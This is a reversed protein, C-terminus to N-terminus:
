GQHLAARLWDHLRLVHYEEPMLMGHEHRISAIGRQNLECVDADEAMFERGFQVINQLDFAPDALTERPLLWETFLETRTPGLPRLRVSRAYDVHAAIYMSPLTTVYAVGIHRDSEDLTPFDHGTSKGDMSWTEAGDRLGGKFKPDTSNAHSQWEPDDREALIGRGYIPVIRSLGPHVGPCHLCESYNEWIIKWNSEVIRTYSHAVVLQDLPWNALRNQDEDFFPFLPPADGEALSVFVFGGWLQVKVPYLGYAAPDVPIKRGYTPVGVLAGKLDYAWAHYPCTIRRGLTGAEERCLQAGRHRCTNHFARIEGEEDRLVLIQQAGIEFIRFARPEAIADTRCVYLWHRYWIRELELAHHAPDYYFRGPLSPEPQRLGNWGAAVTAQADRNDM